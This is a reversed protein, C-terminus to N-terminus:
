GTHVSGPAECATIYLYLYGLAWFSTATATTFPLTFILAHVLLPISLTLSSMDLVVQCALICLCIVLAIASIILLWISVIMGHLAGVVGHVSIELFIKLESFYAAATAAAVAGEDQFSELACWSM